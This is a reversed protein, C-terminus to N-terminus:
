VLWQKGGDAQTVEIQPRPNGAILRFTLPVVDSALVNPKEFSSNGVQALTGEHLRLLELSWPDRDVLLLERAAVKEYFPLKERTQDDPSIVEVVFDPGGFWHTGCNRAEGDRLFVAVDPVRYNQTWDEERDSVNVGPRVEGLGHWGVVDELIASMRSVIQQHEDNPFPAMMSTGEWVEDYRDAGTLCRQAKLTEELSPDTIITTM